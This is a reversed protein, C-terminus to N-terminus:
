FRARESQAPQSRDAIGTGPADFFDDWGHSSSGDSRRRAGIMRPSRAIGTRLLSKLFEMVHDM